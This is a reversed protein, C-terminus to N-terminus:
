RLRTLDRYPALRADSPDLETVMVDVRDWELGLAVARGGLKTSDVALVVEEAGAAMSRKVEAEDLTAGEPAKEKAPLQRADVSVLISSISGILYTFIGL